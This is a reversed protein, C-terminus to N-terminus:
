NLKIIIENKLGTDKDSKIQWQGKLSEVRAKVNSLGTGDSDNVYTGIGNDCVELIIEKGLHKLIIEGKTGKSHKIINNVLELCISYLEFEIKNDFREFENPIDLEFKIQSNKNLNRVLSNLAPVIGKQEFEEPLLNHSLLRVDKYAKELNERLNSHINKEAKNMKTQDIIDLSLWLASLTSGLNDHLDMAVRKREITQGKLMAASIEKNKIFLSRNYFAMAGFAIILAAIILGLVLRINRQNDLENQLNFQKELVLNREKLLKFRGNETEKYYKENIEFSREKHRFAEENLGLGKNAMYLQDQIISEWVENKIKLVDKLNISAYLKAKEYFHGDLAVSSFTSLIVYRFETDKCSDAFVLAKKLYNESINFDKTVYWNLRGLTQNRWMQHPVSGKKVWYKLNLETNRIVEKLELDSAKEDNNDITFDVEPKYNPDSQVRLALNTFYASKKSLPNDLGNKYYKKNYCVSVFGLANNYWSSREKVNSLIKASELALPLAMEGSKLDSNANMIVNAKVFLAVGKEFDSKAIKLLQNAKLLTSDQSDVEYYKSEIELKLKTFPKSFKDNQGNAMFSIFLVCFILFTNKLKKEIKFDKEFNISKTL